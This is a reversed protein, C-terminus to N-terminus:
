CSGRGESGEEMHLGMYSIARVLRHGNVLSRRAGSLLAGVDGRNLGMATATESLSIGIHAHLVVADAMAPRLVCHVCARRCSPCLASGAVRQRLRGWALAAASPSSLATTWVLAIDDFAASVVDVAATSWPIRAQAYLLYLGHYHEYFARYDV